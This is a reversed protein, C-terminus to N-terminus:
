EVIGLMLRGIEMRSTGPLPEVLKGSALVLVRDAVELLEDLDTLHVLVCAGGAAVGRLRAHMDATARLDLGRTLNEAVLVRPKRELAGAIVQRQQNGGSLSAAPADPGPAKIEFQQILQWARARAQGWDVWGWGVWPASAGQSLVLNETLSFSGILGESSRDEPVFSVPGEVRLTGARATVLGAIARLLERQGNGEVAAVGLIEGARGTFTADRIGTGSPGIREVQLGTVSIRVAGATRPARAPREPPTGLMQEALNAESTDAVAGQYVVTGRRLVTVRDAMSTVEQLKHTILISAIGQGSLKRILGLLAEADVPSLVSSPEDLLLIRANAALAKLVELRQKLGASLDQVVADPDLALGTELGLAVVRARLETRRLPWGTALAINEAVTFAPISTFHQHVMGIGLQRADLPDRVVVPSGRVQIAGRDPQLLGFAIKMLTSKGAGNEGLLAHIEGERLDFTAARLAEVAGFRKSIGVLRLASPRGSPDSPTM